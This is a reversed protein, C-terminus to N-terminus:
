PPPYNFVVAGVGSPSNSIYVPGLAFPMLGTNMPVNGTVVPSDTATTTYSYLLTQNNNTSISITTGPPVIGSTQGTGLIIGPITGHNGGSDVISTVPYYPGLPDYGGFQVDLTTIPAGTVSTIPTGTNPGFQLYGQPVNILEGENLQGPLATTVVNAHGGVNANINPGIGLIGHGSPGFAHGTAILTLGQLSTPFPLIGVQVSTPSTVAGGGFDVTTNFDAYLIGVGNGYRIVNFGTPLGLHQLGIDWFPVVLGAAGTDLLVPVSPGGNISVNVVPFNSNMYLPVSVNVPSGIGAAGNNGYLWGGIGGPGGAANPGGAGGAGGNGILGAPGGSGGVMGPMTQSYGTGGKGYLLGGAGGNPRAATGDTGNGILPRGLLLQTPGNIVGLLGQELTQSPSAAAAEAAIYGGAGSNLAQVFQAHFAGAQRSLAEFERGHAAFLTAVAASVEDAGAALLGTTPVVAAANAATLASDIEQLDGAASVLWEPAVILQSVDGKGGIRARHAHLKALRRSPLETKRPKVQWLGDPIGFCHDAVAGCLASRPATPRHFM